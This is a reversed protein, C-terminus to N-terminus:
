IFPQSNNSASREYNLSEHSEQQKFIDIVNLWLFNVVIMNFPLLYFNWCPLYQRLNFCLGESFYKSVHLTFKNNNNNHKTVRFYTVVRLKWLVWKKERMKVGSQASGTSLNNNNLEQVAVCKDEENSMNKRLVFINPVFPVCISSLLRM